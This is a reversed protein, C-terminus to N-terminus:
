TKSPSPKALSDTLEKLLGEGKNEYGAPVRTVGCLVNRVRGIFLHQSYRNKVHYGLAIKEPVQKDAALADLLKGLMTEADKESDGEVYFGEVEQGDVKYAASYGNHLFEYGMFNKKIYRESQGVLNDKPFLRLMSPLGAHEPAASAVKRGFEDLAGAAQGGLGFSLLKVYYRGTVFNMAEGELYGADGVPVAKNEPYREASFIGFANVPAAMDYIELTLTGETGEKKFQAVALEKFDYSLYSEAAGDIYEYLSEPLFTRTAEALKWAEVSPILRNLGSDPPRAQSGDPSAPLFHAAAVVGLLVALGCFAFAKM